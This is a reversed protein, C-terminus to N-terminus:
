AIKSSVLIEKLYGPNLHCSDIHYDKQIDNISFRDNNTLSYVDIFGVGEDRAKELLAFNYEKIVLKLLDYDDENAASNEKPFPVGQFLINNKSIKTKALVYDIYDCVMKKIYLPLDVKNKKYFPIIGSFVRCDIEGFTFLVVNEEKLSDVALEFSAKYRNSNDNSLHWSKCGFVLKSEVKYSCGKIDVLQNAPSLSHSDGIVIIKNKIIEEIHTSNINEILLKLYKCYIRFNNTAEGLKINKLLEEAENIRRSCDHINNEVWYLIADNVLLEIKQESNLASERFALNMFERFASPNRMDRYLACFGIYAVPNKKDLGIAKNFLEEAKEFEGIDAYTAALNSYFKAKNPDFVIACDFKEIAESHKKLGYLACGYNDYLEPSNPNIKLGKEITSIASNYDGIERQAIAWHNLFGANDGNFLSAKEYQANAQELLGLSHLAFAYGYNASKNESDINLVKLFYNAAKKYQQTKINVEALGALTEINNGYCEPDLKITKEYCKEAAIYNKLNEYCKALGTYAQVFQPHIKIANEFCIIAEDFERMTLKLNALNFHLGPDNNDLLLAKAYIDAAESFKNQNKLAIGLNIYFVPVLDNISIARSIYEEAQVFEGSQSAVVGLLHLADVHNPDVKLIEEYDHKAGHLDGCQHKDIGNQLLSSADM